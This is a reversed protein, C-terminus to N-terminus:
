SRAPARHRATFRDLLDLLPQDLRRRVEEEIHSPVGGYFAEAIAGAICATTDTDGGLYVANRVADEFDTSELFAIMAAPITERCTTAVFGRARLAHFSTSCDFQFRRSVLAAMQPKAFGRRGLFVAAAVAQAGRLGDPHNHSPAASKIAERMVTDFDDFAWGVPSVRMASGNGFSDRRARGPHTLWTYFGHGYGASPYRAGWERLNAGYDKGDLIADAIAATLVTDDTFVGRSSFLVFDKCGPSTGEYVSGIIDGAIAGLM